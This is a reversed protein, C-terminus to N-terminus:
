IVISGMYVFPVYIVKALNTNLVHKITITNSGYNDSNYYKFIYDELGEQKIM